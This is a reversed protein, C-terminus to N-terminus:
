KPENMMEWVLRPEYGMSIVHKAVLNNKLLANPEKIKKFRKQILEDLTNTYETHDISDLAERICYVSIKRAKLAASIKIKGWKKIRFKGRAYALAFREENIFGEEILDAIIAEVEKSFLGFSYLKDRVEQQAREQYACYKRIRAVAQGPTLKKM